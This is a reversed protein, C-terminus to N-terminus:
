YIIITDTAVLTPKIKINKFFQLECTSTINKIDAHIVINLHCNDPNRKYLLLDSTLVHLNDYKITSRNFYFTIYSEDNYAICPYKVLLKTYSKVKAQSTSM